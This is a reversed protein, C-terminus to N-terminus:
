PSGARPAPQPAPRPHIDTGPTVTSDRRRVRRARSVSDPIVASAVIVAASTRETASERGSVVSFSAQPCGVKRTAPM